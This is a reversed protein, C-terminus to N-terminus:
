SNTTWELGTFYAIDAGARAPGVGAPTDDVGAPAAEEGARTGDLVRTQSMQAGSQGIEARARSAEPSADTRRRDVGERVFTQQDEPVAWAADAAADLSPAAFTEAAPQATSAEFVGGLELEDAYVQSVLLESKSPELPQQQWQQEAPEVEPVWAPAAYAAVEEAPPQAAVTEADHRPWTLTDPEAEPLWTEAEPAAVAYRFHGSEDTVWFADDGEATTEYLISRDYHEAIRALADIDEVDFVAVGPLQGVRAVPVILRGYRARIAATESRQRPRVLVALAIVILLVLAIGGLAIARATAVSTRAIKFSLFQPEYRKGTTSGSASPTFQSTASSSSTISGSSTVAPEAEFETLSFQLKPSFSTRLPILNLTGSTSVNPTITMTYTGNVRTTSQVSRMLAILAPLDLIASVTAHDGHFYTPSGLPYTAHWGSTSSITASLAARGRLSHQTATHFQYAFSLQVQNLVHTFLPEGTSVRNGPYAPGPTADGSYSFSGTEKYPIKFDRPATTPRTFALLALTVFPLLAVFGIALVGVIPEAPRWAVHMAPSADAAGGGTRAQRRRRRRRRQFAAGTLLLMGIAVLIGVLAPSRISKLEAGAGPLHLRLSGILQSALPHEFDVFNNNDGKFLYRDGDVGIIRHLVITHFMRNHYAVIEGVRYTSRPRVLALDGTHFRPEMSIGNTVVYTTSGGISAPALYFWLCGLVTLGLALSILKRAYRTRM